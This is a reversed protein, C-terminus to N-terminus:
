NDTIMLRIRIHHRLDQAMVPELGSGDVSGVRRESVEELLEGVQDDAVHPQRPHIPHREGMADAVEAIATGDQEYATLTARFVVSASSSMVRM